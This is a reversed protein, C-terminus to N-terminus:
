KLSIVIHRHDGEGHSESILDSFQLIHMHALRRFYASMPPLKQESNTMRAQEIRRNVLKIINEEQRKRYNDIDVLISREVGFKKWIIVKLIQQIAGITEGHHGILLNAEDNSSINIRFVEEGAHQEEEVTVKEYLVGLMELLEVTQEKIQNTEM